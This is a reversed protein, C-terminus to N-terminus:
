LLTVQGHGLFHSCIRLSRHQCISPIAADVPVIICIYYSPLSSALETWCEGDRVEGPISLCSELKLLSFACRQPQSDETSTCLEVYIVFMSCIIICVCVCISKEEATVENVCHWSDGGFGCLELVPQHLPWWLLHTNFTRTKLRYERDQWHVELWGQKLFLCVQFCVKTIYCLACNRVQTKILFM